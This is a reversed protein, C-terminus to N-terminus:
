MAGAGARPSRPQSWAPVLRRACRPANQHPCARSRSDPSTQFQDLSPLSRQTGANRDGRDDPQTCLSGKYRDAWIDPMLSAWSLTGYAAWGSSGGEIPGPTLRVDIVEFQWDTHRGFRRKADEDAAEILEATQQGVKHAAEEANAHLAAVALEPTAGLGTVVDCTDGSGELPITTRATIVNATWHVM